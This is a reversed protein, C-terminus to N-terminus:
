VKRYKPKYYGDIKEFDGFLEPESQMMMELMLTAVHCIESEAAPDCRMTFVHRLARLNGTWVGGTATRLPSVSRIDSTIKKKLGFNGGALEEAWVKRLEKIYYESATYAAKVLERSREKKKIVQYSDGESPEFGLPMIATLEDTAIFRGSGESVAMGARHRNFEATFVRSVGEIAFTYNTHEIVSGHGTNLINDIFDGMDNRVKTLNRNHAGVQFSMYCRKGALTTLLAGDSAVHPYNHRVWINREADDPNSTNIDYTVGMDTLWQGVATHQVQTKAIIYVKPTTLKM